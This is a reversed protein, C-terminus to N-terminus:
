PKPKERWLYAKRNYIERPLVTKRACSILM